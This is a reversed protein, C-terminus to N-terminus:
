AEGLGSSNTLVNKSNISGESGQTPYAVNGYILSIM